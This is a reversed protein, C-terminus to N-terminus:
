AAHGGSSSRKTHDGRSDSPTNGPSHDETGVFDQLALRLNDQITQFEPPLHSGLKEFFQRHSSIEDSWQRPDIRILENFQERDLPLGSWDISEFPPIWGLPTLIANDAPDNAPVAGQTVANNTDGAREKAPHVRELIWKLVRMNEGYGPWLLKGNQKRFWNVGFILPPSRLQKGIRIWHSFYDGMNYGCFPLMAMPDRRVQGVEGVAAATTESATTAALYVGEAWACAQYVLPINDARRGGFIM